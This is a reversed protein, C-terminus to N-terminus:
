EGGKRQKEGKDKVRGRSDSSGVARPTCGGGQPVGATTVRNRERDQGEALTNAGQTRQRM